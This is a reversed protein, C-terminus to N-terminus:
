IDSFDASYRVVYFLVSARGDDADSDDYEM